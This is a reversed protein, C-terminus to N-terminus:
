DKKIIPIVPKIGFESAVKMQNVIDNVLPFDVGYSLLKRIEDSNDAGFFNVKIGSKKLRVIQKEIEPSIPKVLQIFDAKQIITQNVYEISQTQREMNCILVQPVVRKASRAAAINCAIFAQYLRGESEIKKAVMEPLIGEGKLHINLWINLPMIKLVEDLTPITVGAFAPSKKIGADLKKIESLNFDSVKGSGNTTRNVTPDHIVVMASDKTLFVDFEIMQAGAEVAARFAPLTNEPHTALAGRHACLGKLPLQIGAPPQSTQGSGSNAMLCGLCILILLKKM